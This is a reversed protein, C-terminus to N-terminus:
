RVCLAISCRTYKTKFLIKKAYFPIPHNLV